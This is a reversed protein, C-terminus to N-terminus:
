CKIGFVQSDRNADIISKVVYYDSPNTVKINDNRCTVQHLQYGYHMMMSASDIFGTIGSAISKLHAEYIDKLVFSQPAKAIVASERPAVNIIYGNEDIQAPTETAKACSIASGYHKVSEINEKLLQEDIIPRVGDHILVVSDSPCNEHIARLGNYISLQGTEGGKVIWKVKSISFKRCLTKMYGIHSEVCAVCVADIEECREFVELTYIIIPKGYIDLFQKPTSGSNMRVGVGGAFILAVNM